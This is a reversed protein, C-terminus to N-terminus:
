SGIAWRGRCLDQGGDVLRYPDHRQRSFDANYPRLQHRSLLLLYNPPELDHAHGRTSSRLEGHAHSAFPSNDPASTSISHRLAVM